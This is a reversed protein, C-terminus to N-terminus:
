AAQVAAIGGKIDQDSLGRKHLVQTIKPRERGTSLNALRKILEDTTMTLASNNSKRGGLKFKTRVNRTNRTKGVVVKGKPM